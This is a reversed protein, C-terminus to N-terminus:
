DHMIFDSAHDSAVITVTSPPMALTTTLAVDSWRSKHDFVAITVTVIFMPPVEITFMPPVELKLM